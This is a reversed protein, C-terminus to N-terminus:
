EDEDMMEVDEEYEQEQHENEQQQMDMMHGVADFTMIEHWIVAKMNAEKTIQEEFSCDFVPAKEDISDDYGEFYPHRLAEEATIRKEPNFQLMRRLLDLALPDANPFLQEFPIGQRKPIRQLFFEIGKEHGRVDEQPPSGLITVILEMQHEIKNKGPFLVRRGLLEAFICGASWIDIAKTALNSCLLLEPARYHRTVVYPTSMFPNNNFDVPRSLGFDCIKVDCNSKLLINAPKLDRHLINAQHLHRLGCLIQHMFYTIHENSLPTDDSRILTDLDCEMLESVIYLDDFSDFSQPPIIDLLNLVNRHRLHKMIKIERLIKQPSRPNHCVCLIPMPKESCTILHCHHQFANSDFSLSLHLNDTLSNISSQRCLSLLVHSLAVPFRCEVCRLFMLSM